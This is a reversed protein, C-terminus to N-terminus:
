NNSSVTQLVETLYRNTQNLRYSTNQQLRDLTQDVLKLDKIRQQEFYQVVQQLQQKNQRQMTQVLEAMMVANEKKVQQVIAEVQGAPIGKQITVSPSYGLSVSMGADATEVHIQAASGAILLLILGAAVAFGAKGFISQPLLNKADSWWESFSRKKPEMMLLQQAPEEDPMKQLLSRTQSLEDLEQKLKPNERLYAELKMQDEESIEDYLYDMFLSRASQDNM